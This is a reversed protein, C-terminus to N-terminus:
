GEVTPMCLRRTITPRFAYNGTRESCNQPLDSSPGFVPGSQYIVCDISRWERATSQPRHDGMTPM